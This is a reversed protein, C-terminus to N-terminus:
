SLHTLQWNNAYETIIYLTISKKIKDDADLPLLSAFNEVFEEVMEHNVNIIQQNIVQNIQHYVIQGQRISFKVYNKLEKRILLVYVKTAAPLNMNSARRSCRGAWRRRGRARACLLAPWLPAFGLLV